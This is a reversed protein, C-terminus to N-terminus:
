QEDPRPRVRCYEIRNAVDEALEPGFYREVLWLALDLGSTVGGSTILDGEYFHVGQARCGNRCPRAADNRYVCRGHGCGLSSSSGAFGGARRAAGAAAESRLVELLGIADLEDLGDYVVIDINVM